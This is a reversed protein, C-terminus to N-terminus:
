APVLGAARLAEAAGHLDFADVRRDLEARLEAPVGARVDAWLDVADADDAELLAILPVLQVPLAAPAAPPPEAAASPAPSLEGAIAVLAEDLAVRLTL